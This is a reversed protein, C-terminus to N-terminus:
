IRRTGLAAFWLVVVGGAAAARETEIETETKDRKGRAGGAHVGGLSVNSGPPLKWLESTKNAKFKSEPGLPGSSLNIAPRPQGADSASESM